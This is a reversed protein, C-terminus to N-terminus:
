RKELVLFLYETWGRQQCVQLASGGYMSAGWPTRRLASGAAQQLVRILSPTRHLQPTLNKREVPIFGELAAIRLANQATMLSELHWGARFRSLWRERLEAAHSGNPAIFDDCLVLRGGPPLLRGVQVFFAAPDGGHSFSEVAYAGTIGELEPLRTFDAALFNCYRGIGQDLAFRRATQVQLPSLTVGTIEVPYRKALWMASGGVGCGLDLVRKRRQGPSLNGLLAEAIL